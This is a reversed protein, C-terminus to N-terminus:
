NNLVTQARKHAPPLHDKAFMIGAVQRNLRFAHSKEAVVLGVQILFDCVHASDGVDHLELVDNLVVDLIFAYEVEDKGKFSLEQRLEQFRM